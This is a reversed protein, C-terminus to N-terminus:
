ARQPAYEPGIFENLEYSAVVSPRLMMAHFVDAVEPNRFDAIVEIWPENVVAPGIFLVPVANPIRPDVELSLAPFSIVARIEAETILHDKASPRIEIRVSTTYYM